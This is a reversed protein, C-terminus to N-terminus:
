VDSRNVQANQKYNIINIRWIINHDRSIQLYVQIFAKPIMFLRKDPHITCYRKIQMGHSVNIVIRFQNGHFSVVRGSLVGGCMLIYISTSEYKSILAGGHDLPLTNSQLESGSTNLDRRPCIQLNNRRHSRRMVKPPREAWKAWRTCLLPRLVDIMM